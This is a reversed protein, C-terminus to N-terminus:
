YNSIQFASLLYSTAEICVPVCDFAYLFETPFSFHHGIVPLGEREKIIFDDIVSKVHKLGSRLSPIGHHPLINEVLSHTVSIAEYLMQYPIIRNKKENVQTM